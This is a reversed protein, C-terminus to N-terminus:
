RAHQSARQARAAAVLRTAIQPSGSWHLHLFSAHVAREAFGEEAESITARWAPRHGAARDTTVRHFEHGHFLEGAEAVLSTTACRVRRYGLILRTGMAGTVDLVGSMARGDLTQGLYLLGACEAVVPVGNAVSRAIDTRMPSAELAAAHVEPFGGPLYLGTIGRPLPEDKTMDIDVLEAGAASLLERHEPYCLTFAAGGAIGIPVPDATQVEDIVTRTTGLPTQAATAVADGASWPQTRLAPATRALRQLADLDCASAIASGLLGVDRQAASLREAAPVLGLHRSPLAPIDARGLAGLLPIGVQELASALIDRHRQGAVRNAIVGAVNIRPDFDAMGRALAAISSSMGAADIVLVVPAALLRAVHASSSIGSRGADGADAWAAQRLEQALEPRVGDFLGM